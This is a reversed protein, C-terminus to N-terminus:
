PVVRVSSWTTTWNRLFSPSVPSSTHNKGHLRFVRNQGALPCRADRGRNALSRTQEGTAPYSPLKLAPLNPRPPVFPHIGLGLRVCSFIGSRPLANYLRQIVASFAAM